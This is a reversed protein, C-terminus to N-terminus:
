GWRMSWPSPRYLGIPRPVFAQRAKALEDYAAALADVQDDHSGAPFAVLEDLFETNWGGRCVWLEGAEARAAVPGARVEKTGTSRVGKLTFEALVKRRFQDIVAAGASGPEQEIRITPRHHGRETAWAKDDEATARVLREVELPSRRARRVDVVYSIGDESRGLLVGATYDPDSGRGAETSALDWARCLHLKEPLGLRELFRETFWGEQFLGGEPRATWDGHRLKKYTLPGLEKLSLEYSDQDLHPNDELRAPIFVRGKGRGEIVFRRHVWELGPGYPNSAARMRLPIRSDHHRRLRSFLFRYEDEALDTVEDIGVFHYEAGQFNREAGADQMHRFTLTAGSPFRWQHEAGIWLADTGALWERARSMLGGPQTLMQYTERVLVAAYGPIDVYQLAAMLLADSKGGGAAGGYFAELDELLLFATQHPTPRHPIYPSLLPALRSLPRGKLRDARIRRRM